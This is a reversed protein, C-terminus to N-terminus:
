YLSLWKKAVNDWGNFNELISTNKDLLTRMVETDKNRICFELKKTLDEFTNYYVIYVNREDLEKYNIWSPSLVIKKAYLYEQVTASFADTTQAHIFIDSSCILKSYQEEELYQTYIRYNKLNYKGLEECISTKYNENKLGYTMPLIITINDKTEEKLKSIAQIVPIHQQEIAGNYGISIVIQKKHSINNDCKLSQSKNIKKIYDYGTIGFLLTEIKKDYKHGYVKKFRNIMDSTPLTIVDANHLLLGTLILNRKSERLLDSGWYTIVTRVNKSKILSLLFVSAWSVM